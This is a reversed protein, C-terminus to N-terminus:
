TYFLFKPSSKGILFTFIFVFSPFILLPYSSIRSFFFTQPNWKHTSICVSTSFRVSKWYCTLEASAYQVNSRSCQNLHSISPWLSIRVSYEYMHMLIGDVGNLEMRICEEGRKRRAHVKGRESVGKNDYRCMTKYLKVNNCWIFAPTYGSAFLSICTEDMYHIHQPTWCRHFMTKYEYFCIVHHHYYLVHLSNLTNMPCRKFHPTELLLSHLLKPSHTSSNWNSCVSLLRWISPTLWIDKLIIRWNEFSKCKVLHKSSCFKWLDWVTLHTCQKLSVVFFNFTVFSFHFCFHFLYLRLLLWTHEHFIRTFM